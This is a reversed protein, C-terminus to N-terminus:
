SDDDEKSLITQQGKPQQVEFQFRIIEQEATNFAVQHQGQVPNHEYRLGNEEKQATESSQQHRFRRYFPLIALLLGLMMVVLPLWRPWVRILVTNSKSEKGGRRSHIVAHYSGINKYRHSYRIKKSWPYVTNDGPDFRLETDAGYQTSQLWFVVPMYTLQHHHSSRLEFHQQEEPIRQNNDPPVDLSQKDLRNTVILIARAVAERKRDDKILLQIPYRGPPLRKTDIRFTDLNSKHGTSLSWYLWQRSQKAVESLSVFQAIEGQKVTQVEPEIFAAPQSWADVVHIIIPPSNLLFSGITAVVTIKYTGTDEFSYVRHAGGKGLSRGNIYFQYSIKDTVAPTIEAKLVLVQDVEPRHNSISVQLVYHSYSKPSPDNFDAKDKNLAYVCPRILVVVILWLGLIFIFRQIKHAFLPQCM